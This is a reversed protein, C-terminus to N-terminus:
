QIAASISGIISVTILVKPAFIHPLFSFSVAGGELGGFDMANPDPQQTMQEPGGNPIGPILSAQGQSQSETKTAFTERHQPTIPTSPTPTPANTTEAESVPTATVSANSPKKTPKQHVTLWIRVAVQSIM